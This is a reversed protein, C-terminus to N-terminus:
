SISAPDNLPQYSTISHGKHSTETVPVKSLDFNGCVACNSEQCLKALSIPATSLGAMANIYSTCFHIRQRHCTICSLSMPDVPRFSYVNTEVTRQKMEFTEQVTLTRRRGYMNKGQKKNYPVPLVRLLPM